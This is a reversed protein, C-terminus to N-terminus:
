IYDESVKNDYLAGLEDSVEKLSSPLDELHFGRECSRVEGLKVDVYILKMERQDGHESADLVM